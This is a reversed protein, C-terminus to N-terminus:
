SLLHNWLRHSLTRNGNLVKILMFLSFFIRRYKHGQGWVCLQTHLQSTPTTFTGDANPKSCKIVQDLLGVAIVWKWQGWNIQLTEDRTNHENFFWGTPPCTGNENKWNATGVNWESARWKDMQQLICNLKLVILEQHDDGRWRMMMMRLLHKENKTQRKNAKTARSPSILKPGRGFLCTSYVFLSTTALPSLLPRYLDFFSAEELRRSANMWIIPFREGYRCPLPSSGDKQPPEVAAAAVVVGCWCNILHRYHDRSWWWRWIIHM